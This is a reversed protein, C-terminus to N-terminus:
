LKPLEDVVAGVESGVVGGMESGVNEMESGDGEVDRSQGVEVSMVSGLVKPGFGPGGGEERGCGVVSRVLLLVLSADSSGEDDM